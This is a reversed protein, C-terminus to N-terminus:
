VREKQGELGWISDMRDQLDHNGVL